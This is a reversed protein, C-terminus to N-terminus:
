RSEAYIEDLTVPRNQEASRDIAYCVEHTRAADELNVFSETDTLICEAFHAIQADFPHHAVDGSDPRITPVTVWDTAGAFFEPAYLRNDRITGKTGLLDVNFQYPAVISFSTSVKGITGGRFKVIAVVNTDYEYSPNGRNSYASVEIVEDRVFQRLADVAHCGASLFASGAIEKKVNWRYQAYQAGINHWYDVEAYSISGLADADLMKNIWQLQPNWRLVFGVVTKVGAIKVAAGMARLSAPDNAVAKEILLHKGAQAAQITEAPHQNPQTCLSVASVDPDRLMEAYDTYIRADTLGFERAKNAANEPSRSCLATVKTQPHKEFSKIYEGAVWGIGHIGVGITEM